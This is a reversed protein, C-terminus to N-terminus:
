PKETFEETQDFTFWFAKCLFMRDLTKDEENKAKKTTHKWIPFSAKAHQGKCVQRGLAKWGAYTHIAEPEAIQKEEGNGTKVTITNGTTKITGAKMLKMSEAFIIQENTMEKEEKKNRRNLFNCGHPAVNKIM